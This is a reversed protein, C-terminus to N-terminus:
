FSRDGAGGRARPLILQRGSSRLQRTTRRWELACALYKPAETLRCNLARYTLSLIKHQIRQRISLWHLDRLLLTIHARGSVGQTLRAANKQLM